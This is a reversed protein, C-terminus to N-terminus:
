MADVAREAVPRLATPALTVRLRGTVIRSVDLMDDVLQAQAKANTEIVQLARATTAEDLMRGRLMRAWLLIPTLPARLEHSVTALFEDKARSALEADARAAQERRLAERREADGRARQLFQGIPAGLTALMADLSEDPQRPAATFLELVGVVAGGSLLPFGFAGHLGAEAALSARPFNDDGVVDAIWSPAGSAWVRGPLGVGRTFTTGRSAADFTAVDVSPSGWAAVPRLVDGDVGWLAGWTW